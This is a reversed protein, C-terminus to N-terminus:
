VVRLTSSSYNDYVSATIIMYRLLHQHLNGKRMIPIPSMKRKITFCIGFHKIPKFYNM